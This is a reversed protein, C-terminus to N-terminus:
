KIKIFKYSMEQDAEKSLLRVFYVGRPYDRCDITVRKEERTTLIESSGPMVSGMPNTIHINWESQTSSSFTITLDDSVPNPYLNFDDVLNQEPIANPKEFYQHFGQAIMVDGSSLTSVSLEGITQDVQLNVSSYSSGGSAVVDREISVQAGVFFPILLLFFLFRHKM